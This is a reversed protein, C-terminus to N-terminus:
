RRERGGGGSALFAVAPARSADEEDNLPGSSGRACQSLRVRARDEEM